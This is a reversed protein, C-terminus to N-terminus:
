TLQVSTSMGPQKYLDTLAQQDRHYADNSTPYSLAHILGRIDSM